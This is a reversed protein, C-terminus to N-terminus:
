GVTILSVREGFENGTIGTGHPDLVPRGDVEFRYRHHGRGLYLCAFWWGDVLREMAHPEWHNFDGSLKVNKAHPAACFFNVPKYADRDAIIDNTPDTAALLHSSTAFYLKEMM